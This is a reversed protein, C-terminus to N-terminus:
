PSVGGASLYFSPASLCILLWSELREGGRELFEKPSFVQDDADQMCCLELRPGLCVRPKLLWKNFESSSLWLGEPISTRSRLFTWLSAPIIPEFRTQLTLSSLCSWAGVMERRSKINKCISSAHRPHGPIAQTIIWRMEPDRQKKKSFNFIM